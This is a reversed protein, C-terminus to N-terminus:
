SMRDDIRVVQLVVSRFWLGGSVALVFLLLRYLLVLMDCVAVIAALIILLLLVLLAHTPIAVSTEIGHHLHVGAETAEVGHHTLRRESNHRVYGAISVYEDPM